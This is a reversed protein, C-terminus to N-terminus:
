GLPNLYRIGAFRRFDNDASAVTAGHEIALAALHADTTLNGATGNTRLLASLITWHHEEPGVLQIRPRALWDEVYALADDTALPRRMISPHTVIRLFALIVIWPLGIWDSGSLQQELWRRAAKHHVSDADIAYILLNADVLMM